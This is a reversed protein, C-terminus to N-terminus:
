SLRMRTSKTAGAPHSEFHGKHLGEIRKKKDVRNSGGPALIHRMFVRKESVRMRHEEMLILFWTECGYL